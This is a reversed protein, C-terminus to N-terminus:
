ALGVRDNGFEHRDRLLAQTSLSVALAGALLGLTVPAGLGLAILAATLVLREAILVEHARLAKRADAPGGLLPLYALAGLGAAAILLGPGFVGPADYLACAGVMAIAFLVAACRSALVAGYVVPLTRYGGARDGVIDRVAGVVNSATDQLCFVAAWGFVVASPLGDVLTAAFVMALGTLVGRLLNGALGRQKLVKSYIATGVAGLVVVAVSQAQVLVAVLLAVLVCGLGIVVVRRPALRGSPIPRHPKGLADLERDFYDGLYLGGLWILTPALWAAIWQVPSTAGALAAGALGVMGPYALTYPRCTEVHAFWNWGPHPIVM